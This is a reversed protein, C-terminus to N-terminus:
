SFSSYFWTTNKKTLTYTIIHQEFSSTSNGCLLEDEGQLCDEKGDCVMQPPICYSDPCKIYTEPCSINQCGVLHSADKCGEAQGYKDINMICKHIMDVFSGDECRISDIEYSGDIYCTCSSINFLFPNSSKIDCMENRRNTLTVM